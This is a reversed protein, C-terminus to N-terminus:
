RRVSIMSPATTIPTHAIIKMVARVMPMTLSMISSLM